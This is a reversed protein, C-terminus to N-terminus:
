SETSSTYGAVQMSSDKTAQSLSDKQAWPGEDYKVETEVAGCNGNM